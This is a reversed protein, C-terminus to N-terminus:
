KSLRSLFHIHSLFPSFSHPFFFSLVHARFFFFRSYFYVKALRTLSARNTALAISVLRLPFPPSPHLPALVWFRTELMLINRSSLVRISYLCLRPHPRPSHFYIPHFYIPIPTIRSLFLPIRTKQHSDHHVPPWYRHFVVVNKEDRVAIGQPENICSVCMYTYSYILACM